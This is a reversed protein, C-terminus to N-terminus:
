NRQSCIVDLPEARERLSCKTQQPKAAEEQARLHALCLCSWQVLWGGSLEQWTKNVDPHSRCPQLEWLTLSFCDQSWLTELDTCHHQYRRITKQSTSCSPSLNDSRHATLSSTGQAREVGPQFILLSIPDECHQKILLEIKRLM